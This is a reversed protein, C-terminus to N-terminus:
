PEIYRAIFRRAQEGADGDPDLEAARLFNAQAEETKGLQLLAIGLHLYAPSYSGDSAIAQGIFREASLADGNTLFAQGMLDLGTPDAPNLLVVQRAAPLGTGAVDLRNTISFQALARWYSIDEPAIGVTQRYQELAGGLDGTSALLNGLEYRWVPNDPESRAAAELKEQAVEPNGQRLWYVGYLAQVVVSDPALQQAKELDAAGDEGLHQRAEGLFAWAEAYEPNLDAARHFAAEALEWAQTAGLGRGVLVLRYAPDANEPARNIAAQLVRVMPELQGDLQAAQLLETLAAEPTEVAMVQGLRYHLQAQQPAITAAAQLADAAAALDGQAISGDALRTYADVSEPSAVILDKWIQVARQTNGTSWYADGYALRGEASLEGRSQATAFLRLAASADGAELAASAAQEYLDARWPQEDAAAALAQASAAPEGHAGAWQAQPLGIEVVRSRPAIQFALAIVLPIAIISWIPPQPAIKVNQNYM